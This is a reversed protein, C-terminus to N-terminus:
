AAEGTKRQPKQHSGIACGKRVRRAAVADYVRTGIQAIGPLHMVLAPLLGLPTQRLGRRIAPYGVLTRGDATRMPIGRMAAEPSVTIAPDNRATDIFRSLDSFELRKLWDLARMVRATRQCMGCADDFYLTDRSM